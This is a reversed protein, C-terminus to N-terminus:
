DLPSKYNLGRSFAEMEVKADHGSVRAWQESVWAMDGPHAAGRAVRARLAGETTGLLRALDAYGYAWLKPSRGRSGGRRIDNHEVVRRSRAM